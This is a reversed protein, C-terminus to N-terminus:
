FEVGIEVVTAPDTLLPFESALAPSMLFWLLNEDHHLTNTPGTRADTISQVSDGQSFTLNWTPDFYHWSGDYFTEVAIHNNIGDPFYFQVSRVPLGFQQVLAQFTFSATGCIGAQTGLATEADWPLDFHAIANRYGYAPATVHGVVYNMAALSILYGDSVTRNQSAAILKTYALQERIIETGRQIETPVADLKARYADREAKYSDRQYEATTLMNQLWNSGAQVDALQKERVQATKKLVAVQKKLAVIQRQQKPTAQAATAAILAVLTVIILWLKM